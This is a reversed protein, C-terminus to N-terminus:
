LILNLTKPVSLIDSVDFQMFTRQVTYRGRDLTSSICDEGSGLGTNVATGTNADRATAWSADNSIIVADNTNVSTKFTKVM